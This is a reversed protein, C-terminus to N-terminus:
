ASTFISQYPRLLSTNVSVFSQLQKIVNFHFTFTFGTKTTSSVPTGQPRSTFQIVQPQSDLAGKKYYVFGPGFGRRICDETDCFNDYWLLFTIGSPCRVSHILHRCKIALLRLVFLLTLHLTSNHFIFEMRTYIIILTHFM